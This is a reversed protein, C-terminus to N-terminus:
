FRQPLIKRFDPSTGALPTGGRQDPWEHWADTLLDIVEDDSTQDFQKYWQGVAQFRPPQLPCVLQDALPALAACSDPAGVPAAVILRAPESARAVAIAARMSAGTAIGDDVLIVTRRFLAPPPRAARYRRERRNLEHTAADCLTALTTASIGAAQVVDNQLVRVGGSGIAGIAFEEHGPMGIKRVLLIDLPLHLGAAVAHAVPVGGRPLALVIADDGRLADRLPRALQRGAHARNRYPRSPQGRALNM